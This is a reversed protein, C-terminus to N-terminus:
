STLRIWPLGSFCRSSRRRRSRSRRRRRRMLMTMRMMMRMMMMKLHHLAEVLPDGCCLHISQCCFGAGIHAAAATSASLDGSTKRLPHKPSELSIRFSTTRGHHKWTNGKNSTEETSTSFQSIIQYITQLMEKPLSLVKKISYLGGSM